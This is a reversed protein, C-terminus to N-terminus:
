LFVAFWMRNFISDCFFCKSIIDSATGAYFDDIFHNKLSASNPKINQSNYNSLTFPFMLLMGNNM